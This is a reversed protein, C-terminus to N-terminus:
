NPPGMSPLGQDGQPLPVPKPVHMLAVEPGTIFYDIPDWANDDTQSTATAEDQMYYKTMDEVM